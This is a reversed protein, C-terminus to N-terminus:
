GRTQVTEKFQPDTFRGNDARYACVRDGHTAALRKYAEKTYITEESSTGRM